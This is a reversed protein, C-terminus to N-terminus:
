IINILVVQVEVKKRNQKKVWLDCDEIQIIGRPRSMNGKFGSSHSFSFLSRDQKAAPSRLYYQYHLISIFISLSTNRTVKPLPIHLFLYLYVPITESSTVQPLLIAYSHLFSFLYVPIAPSRLYYYLMPIFSHIYISQYQKVASSRQYYYLM